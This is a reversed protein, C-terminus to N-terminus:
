WETLTLLYSAAYRGADVAAGCRQRLIFDPTDATPHLGNNPQPM